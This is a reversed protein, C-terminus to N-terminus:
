NIRHYFMAYSFLYELSVEHYFDKKTVVTLSVNHFCNSGPLGINMHTGVIGPENITTASEITGSM